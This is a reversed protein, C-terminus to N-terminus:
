KVNKKEQEKEIEKFIKALNGKSRKNLGHMKKKTRRKRGINKNIYKITSPIKADLNKGLQEIDESIMIGKKVLMGSLIENQIMVHSTVEVLADVLNDTKGLSEEVIDNLKKVIQNYEMEVKSHVITTVKKRIEDILLNASENFSKQINKILEDKDIKESM